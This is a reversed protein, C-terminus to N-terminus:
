ETKKPDPLTFYFTAGENVASKAWIHGEHLGIIRQVIALGIGNGATNEQRSHLRQFPQFLKGANSMDFGIGNDRVFYVQQRNITTVGFQVKAAPVDATYKWANDLLNHLVIRILKPDAKAHIDPTIDIEVLQGFQLANLQEAIDHAIESLNVSLRHVESRSFASLSLLNDILDAMSSIASRIRMLYHRANSDLGESYDELLVQSFGDIARLPTRLDHSIAHSFAELEHSASALKRTSTDLAEELHIRYKEQEIESQKRADINIIFGQLRHRLETDVLHSATLLVWVERGDSALMRCEFQSTKRQLDTFLEYALHRDDPHLYSTLFGESYWHAIPHGLLQEAQPAVYTFRWEGPNADWAIAPTNEVLRRYRNQSTHLASEAQRRSLLDTELRITKQELEGLLQRLAKRTTELSQGLEGIEDNRQWSFPTQLDNNALKRSQETLQRLPRLIRSNLLLLILALSIAAQLLIALLYQLQDKKIAQTALGDDMELALTGIPVGQKLIPLTLSRLQGLRREPHNASLFTGLTADIVTIRVIREDSLLSDILPKGAEPALNWLPDQMGLVLIDAYRQHALQLESNMNLLANRANLYSSVSAPLLLGLLIALVVATRLSLKM